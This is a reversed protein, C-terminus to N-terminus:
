RPAPHPEAKEAHFRRARYIAGDLPDVMGPVFELQPYVELLKRRMAGSVEEVHALISGTSAIKLGKEIGPETKTLRGIVHMVLGALAEGGRRLTERAVRDGDQAAQVIVPMLSAFSFDLANAVGVLDDRSRLGLHDLVRHLLLPEEGADIASFVGRLAQQGLISGSGEDSIAPGWGGASTTWGSRGRGIVNSGTGAIVIVGPAGPFAADLTIIEDGVMTLVGGVRIAMQERLWDTVDAVAIGATGICSATIEALAIGSEASVTDLVHRLHEAAEAKDVRLVKASGARARALIKQEDALACATKTGGIDLGLFYKMAPFGSDRLRIAM